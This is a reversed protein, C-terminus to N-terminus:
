LGITEVKGLPKSPFFTPTKAELVGKRGDLNPIESTSNILTSPVVKYTFFRSANLPDGTNSILIPDFDKIYVIKISM